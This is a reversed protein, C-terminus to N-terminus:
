FVKYIEVSAAELSTRGGKFNWELSLHKCKRQPKSVLENDLQICAVHSAIVFLTIVNIAVKHRQKM